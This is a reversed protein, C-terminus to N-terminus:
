SARCCCVFFCIHKRPRAIIDLLPSPDFCICSACSCCGQLKIDRPQQKGSCQFAQYLGNSKETPEMVHCCSYIVIYEHHCAHNVDLNYMYDLQIIWPPLLSPPPPPLCNKIVNALPEINNLSWETFSTRGILPIIIAKGFCALVDRMWYLNMVHIFPASHISYGYGPRHTQIVWASTQYLYNKM